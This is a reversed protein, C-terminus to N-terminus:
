YQPQGHRHRPLNILLISQEVKKVQLWKDIQSCKPASACISNKRAVPQLVTREFDVRAERVSHRGRMRIRNRPGASKAECNFAWPHVGDM